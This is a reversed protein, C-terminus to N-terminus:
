INQVTFTAKTVVFNTFNDGGGVQIQLAKGILDKPLSFGLILALSSGAAYAGVYETHVVDSVPSNNTINFMRLNFSRGSNNDSTFSVNLSVV